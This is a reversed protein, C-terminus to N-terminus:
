LPINHITTSLYENLLPINYIPKSLYKTASPNMGCLFITSLQLEINLQQPIWEVSSYQLYNYIFSWNNLTENLLPINCVSTPFYETASSSM